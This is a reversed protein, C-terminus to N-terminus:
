QKQIAATLGPSEDLTVRERKKASVRSRYYYTGAASPQRSDGQQFIRLCNDNALTAQQLPPGKTMGRQRLHVARDQVFDVGPLSVVFPWGCPSAMQAWKGSGRIGRTPCFKREASGNFPRDYGDPQRPRDQLPLLEDGPLKPYPGVRIQEAEPAM